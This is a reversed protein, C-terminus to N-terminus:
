AAEEEALENLWDIMDDWDYHMEFNWDLYKNYLFELPNEEKALLEAANESIRNEVYSSDEEGLMSAFSEKFAVEYWMSYLKKPTLAICKERFEKREKKISACVIKLAKQIYNM